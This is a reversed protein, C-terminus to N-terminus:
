AESEAPMNGFIDELRGAINDMMEDALVSINSRIESLVNGGQDENGNITFEPSLSISISVNPSTLRTISVPEPRSKEAKEEAQLENVVSHAKVGASYLKSGGVFGGDAHKGVGIAEGAEEWISIARSRRAPNTPIVYEGYGEEALWTLEKHGAYGGAARKNARKKNGKQGGSNGSSGGQSTVKVGASDILSAVNFHNANWVVALDVEATATKVMDAAEQIKQQVEKDGNELKYKDLIQIDAPVDRLNSAIFVSMSKKLESIASADLESVGNEGAAFKYVPEVKVEPKLTSADNGILTYYDEMNMKAFDINKMIEEATPMAESFSQIIHNKTEEPITITQALSEIVTKLGAGTETKLDDIGFMKTVFDDDWKTVDSESSLAGRIATKLKEQTTGEIGPLINNLESEYSKVIQEVQFDIVRENLAAIQQQYNKELDGLKDKYTQTDTKGDYEINLSTIATQMADYLNQSMTDANNKLEAQMNGFSEADMHGSYKASLAKFSADEEAESIKSTINAIKEQLKDIAKQEKANIVGDELAKEVKKSLKVSFKGLDKEIKGYMDDFGSVVNKEDSGMLLHVAATAEIHKNKIYEEAEDAFSDYASQFSMKDATDLKLGLSATFSSKQINTLATNMGGYASASNQAAEAYKNIKGLYGGFVISSAAKRVDGLSLALDGFHSSVDDAVAKQFKVRLEDTSVDTDELADQLAQSKFNLKDMSIGTAEIAKQAMECDDEYQDIDKKGAIIGGIAGIGAGILGGAAAGIPGGLMGIAAGVGAGALAGGGVGIFEKGAAKTYAERKAADDTSLGTYLDYGGKILGVGGMIGGAISAGGLAAAAGGSMTGATSGFYLGATNGPNLAYGAGAFKGLLGSGRVMANGTSGIMGRLLGVSAIGDAASGAAAAEGTGSGFLGAVSKGLNIMGSGGRFLPTLIKMLLGASLLSSLDAEKGGPLLKSANSFLNKFGEWLKKSIDDFDFGQAFGKAFQAGLSAGEDFTGTIDFGLLTLIGAHMASGVGEGIESLKGAVMAKGTSDWWDAFPEGIIKDWALKVKGLNSAKKWEESLKLNRMKQKINDINSDIRDMFNDLGRQIAPMEGKIWNAFSVVYPELRQGFAVKVSDVKSQLLTMAGAMNNIMTDSMDKSTGDADKIANKLKKYDKESANLIALLGKQGNIGAVQNAFQTKQEQTMDKTKKRLGDIVEGFPRAKGAADFFKIGLAEVHERAHRTNSSLRTMIQQLSTGAMSSKLGSNAMLGIALATDEISYGLSGAMTAAYKFTEGMKAVDTNSNSSAVALVDAFHTSDKASLGFATLADTVIDSTTALDEGSAAALNMIGEIGQMMDEAKWGAMAMYQFAEGSETATFKTKEGMEKAKATLQTFEDETAGSIAKVKSM